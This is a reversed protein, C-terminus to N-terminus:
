RKIKFRNIRKFKKDPRFPQIIYWWDKPTVVIIVLDRIVGSRMEVDFAWRKFWRMIWYKRESFFYAGEEDHVGAALWTGRTRAEGMGEHYSSETLKGDHGNHYHGCYPATEYNWERVWGMREDITYLTNYYAQALKNHTNRM